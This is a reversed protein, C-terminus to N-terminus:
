DPDYFQHLGMPLVHQEPRVHLVHELLVRLDNGLEGRTENGDRPMIEEFHIVGRPERGQGGVM